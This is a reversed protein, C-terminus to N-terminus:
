AKDGLQVKSLKQHLVKWLHCTLHRKQCGVLLILAISGGREGDEATM